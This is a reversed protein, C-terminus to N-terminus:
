GPKENGSWLLAPVHPIVHRYSQSTKRSDVVNPRRGM